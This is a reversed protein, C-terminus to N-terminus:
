REETLVKYLPSKMYPLEKEINHVPYDEVVRGQCDPDTKYGEHFYVYRVKSHAWGSNSWDTELIDELLEYIVRGDDYYNGKKRRKM